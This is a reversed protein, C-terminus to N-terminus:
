LGEANTNYLRLKLFFYQFLLGEKQGYKLITRPHSVITAYKVVFIM